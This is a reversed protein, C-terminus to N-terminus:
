AEPKSDDELAAADANQAGETSGDEAVVEPNASEVGLRHAPRVPVAYTLVKSRGDAHDTTSVHRADGTPWLGASIAYQRTAALNPEHDYGTAKTYVGPGLVFVKRYEDGPEVTDASRAAVEDRLDDLAAVSETAELEDAANDRHEADPELGDVEPPTTNQETM